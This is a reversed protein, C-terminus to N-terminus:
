KALMKQIEKLLPEFKALKASVEKIEEPTVKEDALVKQIEVLVDSVAGVFQAAEGMVKLAGGYQGHYKAALAGVVLTLGTAVAIMMSPDM